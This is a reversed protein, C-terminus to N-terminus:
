AVFIIKRDRTRKQFWPDLRSAGAYLARLGLAFAYFGEKPTGGPIDPLRSFISTQMPTHHSGRVLGRIPVPLNKIPSCVPFRYPAPTYEASCM